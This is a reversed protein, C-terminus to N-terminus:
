RRAIDAAGRTDAVLHDDFQLFPLRAMGIGLALDDLHEARRVGFPHVHQRHQPLVLQRQM